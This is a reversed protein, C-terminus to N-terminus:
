NIGIGIILYPNIQYFIILIMSIAMLSYIPIHRRDTNKRNVLVIILSALLFIAAGIYTIVTASGTVSSQTGQTIIEVNCGLIALSTIGGVINVPLGWTWQVVYFLIDKITNKFNKEKPTPETKTIDVNEIKEM